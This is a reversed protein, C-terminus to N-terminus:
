LPRYIQVNRGGCCSISLCYAVYKVIAARVSRQPFKLVAVVVELPTVQNAEPLYFSSGRAVGEHSLLWWWRLWSRGGLGHLGYLISTVWSDDIKLTAHM